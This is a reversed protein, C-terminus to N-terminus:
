TKHTKYADTISLSSFDKPEYGLMKYGLMRKESMRVLMPVYQDVYDFVIVEKKMHHLRHLRGAYQALTGRWSIPMALFLTDLRSDDFGEGLYRGTAILLRKETEPIAELREIAEKREKAKMGGHLVIVNELVSSLRRQLYELHEKRETLILPSRGANMATIVDNILLENRAQDLALLRYVEHFPVSSTEDSTTALRFETHRQIVSHNFPRELAQKKPDVKYRIPGCQMFIIPHHGDKRVATATLGLVYKANCEKIVAEFSVASLHHCEDVIIHGYNAVIDDVTGKRVLSQILAVDIMGTPKRKGGGIQGIKIKSTDLFTELRAM